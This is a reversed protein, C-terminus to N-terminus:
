QIKIVLVSQDDHQVASGCFNKIDNKIQNAIDKGDASHNQKVVKELSKFSYQAGDNNLAEIIGDTCTVIIDGSEVSISNGKYETEKEVGVPEFDDSIKTFSKDSEKYLFIPNTGGSSYQIKKNVSDYLLLSVSAFHDISNEFAIGKNAWSLITGATQTTNIILRLMARIMLMVVLSNMNKGTVDAMIFAIRDKRAIVLDYYDGCIDDAANFFAGTSVGPLPPLKSPILSKQIRAAIEGEKDMSSREIIENHNTISRIAIAIFDSLKKAIDFERDTFPDNGYDKSLAIEGIAQNNVILPVFIFSGLKLFDENENQYIREDKTPELILESSVKTIIDGFINGQLPFQAYKMSMEVRNQKHPINDPLQYPPPFSGTLRKVSIVDDFDDLLLIMSGDAHTLDILQNGFYELTQTLGGDPASLGGTAHDMFAKNVDLLGREIEDYVVNVRKGAKIPGTDKKDRAREEPKATGKLICYPLLVLTSIFLAFSLVILSPHLVTYLMGIMMLITVIFFATSVKATKRVLIVILFAIIGVCLVSASLLPIYSYIDVSILTEDGFM